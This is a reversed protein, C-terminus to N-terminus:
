DTKGLPRTELWKLVLKAATEDVDRSPWCLVNRMEWALYSNGLGWVVQSLAGALAGPPLGAWSRPQCWSIDSVNDAVQENVVELLPGLAKDQKGEVLKRIRALTQATIENM